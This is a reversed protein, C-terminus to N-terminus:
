AQDEVQAPRPPENDILQLAGRSPVQYILVGKSDHLKMVPRTQEYEFKIHAQEAAKSARAERAERLTDRDRPAELNRDAIQGPMGKRAQGAPDSSRIGPRVRDAPPGTQASHTLNAIDM